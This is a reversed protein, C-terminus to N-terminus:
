KHISHMSIIRYNSNSIEKYGRKFANPIQKSAWDLKDELSLAGLDQIASKVRSIETKSMGTTDIMCLKNNRSGLPFVLLYRPSKGKANYLIYYLEM